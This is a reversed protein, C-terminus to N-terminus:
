VILVSVPQYAKQQYQYQYQDLFWESSCTKTECRFWCSCKLILEHLFVFQRQSALFSFIKHIFDLTLHASTLNGPWWWHGVALPQPVQSELSRHLFNFCFGDCNSFHVRIVVEWHILHTVLVLLCKTTRAFVVGTNRCFLARLGEIKKFCLFPLQSLASSGGGYCWRQKELIWNSSGVPAVLINDRNFALMQLLSSLFIQQGRLAEDSSKSKVSVPLM